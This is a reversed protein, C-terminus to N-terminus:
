RRCQARSAVFLATVRDSVTAPDVALSGLGRIYESNPCRQRRRSLVGRVAIWDQMVYQPASRSFEPKCQLM